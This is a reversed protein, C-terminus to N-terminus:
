KTTEIRMAMTFVRTLNKLTNRMLYIPNSRLVWSILIITLEMKTDCNKKEPKIRKNVFASKSFVNKLHSLSGKLPANESKVVLHYRSTLGDRIEIMIVLATLGYILTHM